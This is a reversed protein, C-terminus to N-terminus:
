GMALLVFLLLLGRFRHEQWTAKIRKCSPLVTRCPNPACFVSGYVRCGIRVQKGAKLEAATSLQLLGIAPEDAPM